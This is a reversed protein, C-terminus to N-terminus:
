RASGLGLATLFGDLRGRRRRDLKELQDETLWTGSCTTCRQVAVGRLSRPELATQCKPCFLRGMSLLSQREARAVQDAKQREDWAEEQRHEAEKRRFFDEEAPNTM